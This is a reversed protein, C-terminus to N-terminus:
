WSYKTVFPLDNNRARELASIRSLNFHKVYGRGRGTIFCRNKFTSPSCRKAVKSLLMSAEWRISLPAKRNHVIAKLAVYKPEIKKFNLRRTRERTLLFKM